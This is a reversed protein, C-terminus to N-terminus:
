TSRSLNSPRVKQLTLSILSWIESLKLIRLALASGLLTVLALIVAALVNVGAFITLEGLAIGCGLCLLPKVVSGVQLSAPGKVSLLRVAITAGIIGEILSGAAAGPLGFAPIMIFTGPISLGPILIVTTAIGLSAGAGTAFLASVPRNLGNLASTAVGFVISGLSSIVLIQMPLSAISYESSILGLVQDPILFFVLIPASVLLLASRISLNYLTSVSEGKGQSVVASVTPLLALGISTATTVLVLRTLFAINYYGAFAAGLFYGVLPISVQNSATHFITAAYNPATFRFMRRLLGPSKGTKEKPLAAPALLTLGVMASTIFGVAYGLVIGVAGLGGLVLVVAVGLRLILFTLDGVLCYAMRHCGQYVGNLSRVLAQFPLSLAGLAILLIFEKDSSLISSSLAWGVAIILSAAATVQITRSFVLRALSGLGRSNYESIFKSVGIQFGLGAFIVLISALAVVIAAKGVVDVPAIRAVIIWFFGGLLANAASDLTM